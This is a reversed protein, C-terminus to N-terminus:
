VRWGKRDALPRVTAHALSGQLLGDGELLNLGPRSGVRLQGLDSFGCADAGGKTAITILTSLPIEPYYDNVIRLQDLLSLTPSSSYSDTGIALPMGERLMLPINPMRGEIFLNSAPCLVISANPAVSKVQQMLAQSLAVCHILLMRKGLQGLHTLHAMVEDIRPITVTRKWVNRYLNDMAGTGSNMFEVEQATEMFHLSLIPAKELEPMLYDWLERGVSYPAHPTFYARTIGAARFCEMVREAAQWARDALERNAGFVEVFSISEFDEHQKFPVTDAANGIDAYAVQGDRKLIEYADALAKDIVQQDIDIRLSDIQRLFAVMSGGPVFVGNFFSLEMHTHANVFGPTLIGNYFEVGEREPNAADLQFIELIEGNEAIAVGGYPLVEGTQTHLQHAAIRRIQM